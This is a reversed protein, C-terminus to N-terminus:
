HYTVEFSSYDQLVGERTTVAIVRAAEPGQHCWELFKELDEAGAEAAIFVNGDAENRVYGKIGLREAVTKATARYFVGQVKGSVTIDLHQKM